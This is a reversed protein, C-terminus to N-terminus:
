NRAFRWASVPWNITLLSCLRDAFVRTQGAKGIWFRHCVPSWHSWPVSFSYPFTMMIAEQLNFRAAIVM